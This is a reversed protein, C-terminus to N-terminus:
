PCNPLPLVVLVFRGDMLIPAVDTTDNAEEVCDVILFPPGTAIVARSQDGDVSGIVTGNVVLPPVATNFLFKM